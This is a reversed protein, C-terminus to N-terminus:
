ILEKKENSRWELRSKLRLIIEINEKNQVSGVEVHRLKQIDFM